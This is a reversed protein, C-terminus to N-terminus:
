QKVLIAKSQAGDKHLEISYIGAEWATCDIEQQVHSLTTEAIINGLM